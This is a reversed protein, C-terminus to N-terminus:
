SEQKKPARNQLSPRCLSEGVTVNLPNEVAFEGEEEAKERQTGNEEKERDRCEWGNTKTARHWCEEMRQM